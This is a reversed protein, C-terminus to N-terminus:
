ERKNLARTRNAGINQDDVSFLNCFGASASGLRPNSRQSEDVATIFCTGGPCPSGQGRCKPV